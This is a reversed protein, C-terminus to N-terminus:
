FSALRSPGSEVLKETIADALASRVATSELLRVSNDAFRTSSLVTDQAWFGFGDLTLMFAFIISLATALHSRRRSRVRHHRESSEIVESM